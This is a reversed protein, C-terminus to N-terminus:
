FLADMEVMLLTLDGTSLDNYLVRRGKDSPSYSREGWTASIGDTINISGGHAFANRVIRGFTLVEPWQSKPGLKARMEAANKEFYTIFAHEYLSAMLLQVANPDSTSPPPGNSQMFELHIESPWQWRSLPGTVEAPEFVVEVNKCHCVQQVKAGKTFTMNSGQSATSSQIVTATFGQIVTATAAQATALQNFFRHTGPTLTIPDLNV